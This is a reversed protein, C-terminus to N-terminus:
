PKLVHSTDVFVKIFMTDNKMYAPNSLVSQSVFFPFGYGVNEDTPKSFSPSAPDPRFSDQLHRRRTEQDLLMVTVQFLLLSYCLQMLGLLIKTEEVIASGSVQQSGAM